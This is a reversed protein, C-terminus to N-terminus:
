ICFTWRVLHSMEQFFYVSNMDQHYESVRFIM